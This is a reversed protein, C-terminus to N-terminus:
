DNLTHISGAELVKSGNAETVGLVLDYRLKNSAFKSGIKVINNTLTLIDKKLISHDKMLCARWKKLMGGLSLKKIMDHIEEEEMEMRTFDEIDNIPSLSVKDPARSSFLPFKVEDFLYGSEGKSVEDMPGKVWGLGVHVQGYDPIVIRPMPVVRGYLDLSSTVDAHDIERDLLQGLLAESEEEMKKMADQLQHLLSVPSYLRLLEEKRRKLKHMKEQAVVLETTRIIRCQNRLEMIWPEKELNEGAYPNQEFDIKRIPIIYFFFLEDLPVIVLLTVKLDLNPYPDSCGVKRMPNWRDGSIRSWLSISM